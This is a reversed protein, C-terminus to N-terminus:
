RLVAGLFWEVAFTSVQGCPGRFLYDCAHTGGEVDELFFSADLRKGVLRGYMDAFALIVTDISGDAVASRLSEVDMMGRTM